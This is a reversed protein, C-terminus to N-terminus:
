VRVGEVLGEVVALMEANGNWYLRARDVFGLLQEKSVNRRLCDDFAEILALKHKM